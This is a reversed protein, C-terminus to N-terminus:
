NVTAASPRRRPPTRRRGLPVASAKRKSTLLGLHQELVDAAQRMAKVFTRQSRTSNFSLLASSVCTVEGENRITISVDVVPGPKKKAM